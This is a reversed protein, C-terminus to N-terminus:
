ALQAYIRRAVEDWLNPWEIRVLMSSRRITDGTIKENYTTLISIGDRDQGHVVTVRYRRNLKLERIILGDPVQRQGIILDLSASLEADYDGRELREFKALATSCNRQLESETAKVQVVRLRPTGEEEYISLVDYAPDSNHPTGSYAYIVQELKEEIWLGITESAITVFDLTYQGDAGFLRRYFHKTREPIDLEADIELLTDVPQREYRHMLRLALSDIFGDALHFTKGDITEIRFEHFDGPNVTGVSVIRCYRHM